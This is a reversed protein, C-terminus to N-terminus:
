GLMERIESVPMLQESIDQKLSLKKSIYGEISRDVILSYINVPKTQGIRHARDEMQVKKSVSWPLDYFIITEAIQLNLGFGMASTGILIKKNPDTNFQDVIKQRDESSTAGTIMLSNPLERQLITAMKAFQTFIIVKSDM